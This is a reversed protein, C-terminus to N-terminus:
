RTAFATFTRMIEPLADKSNAASVQHTSFSVVIALVMLFAFMKKM